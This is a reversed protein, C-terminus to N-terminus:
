VEKAEALFREQILRAHELHEQMAQSASQSDGEAISEVIRMHDPIVTQALDPYQQVMLRVDWMLDRISDLLLALLPNHTTAALAQHFESDKLAFQHPDDQAAQM